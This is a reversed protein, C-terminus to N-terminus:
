LPLVDYLPVFSLALSRPLMPWSDMHPTMRLDLLHSIVPEEDIPGQDTHKTRVFGDIIQATYRPSVPTGASLYSSVCTSILTRQIM